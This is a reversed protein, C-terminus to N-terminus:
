GRFSRRSSCPSWRRRRSAWGALGGYQRAVSLLSSPSVLAVGSGVLVPLAPRLQGAQGPLLSTPEHGQRRPQLLDDRPQTGAARCRDDYARAQDGHRPHSIGVMPL